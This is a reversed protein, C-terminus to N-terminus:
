SWYTEGCVCFCSTWFSWRKVAPFLVQHKRLRRTAKPAEARHTDLSLLTWPVWNLSLLNETIKHLASHWFFDSSTISFTRWLKQSAFRWNWEPEPLCASPTTGAQCNCWHCRSFSSSLKLKIERSYMVLFGNLAYMRTGVLESRRHIMLSTNTCITSGCSVFPLSQM